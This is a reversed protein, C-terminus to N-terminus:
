LVDCLVGKRVGELGYYLEARYVRGPDPKDSDHFDNDDRQFFEHGDVRDSLGHCTWFWFCSYSLHYKSNKEEKEDRFDEMM